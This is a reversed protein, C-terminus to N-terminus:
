ELMSRAVTAALAMVTLQPNVEPCSPLLGADAVRLNAYGWVRGGPDVVSCEPDAGMRATGVPHFATPRFHAPEWRLTALKEADAFSRVSHLDPHGTKVELAGAALFIRASQVVGFALATVDDPHLEYRPRPSRDPREVIEGEGADFAFVGMFGSKSIDLGPTMGPVLSTAELLVGPDDIFQDIYYSQLTSPLGDMAKDFKAMVGACPHIQLHRGVHDPNGIGHRALINPTHIPGAALVVEDADIRIAGRPTMTSDLLTAAVGTIRDREMLLEEARVRCAIRTGNLQARPLYSVHMAQKGGTPCGLVCVGSGRCGDINRPVPGGSLGLAEAGNRVSRGNEGLLEDPVPKVALIGEIEDLEHALAIPDLHDLGEDVWRNLVSDRPRFCSGSNIVTSGGVARGTPIHIPVSGEAQSEFGLRWLNSICAAADAGYDDDKFYAGEEVILVDRGGDALIKATVAGGAGSGIILVEARLTQGDSIEPYSITELM